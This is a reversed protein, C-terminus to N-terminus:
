CRGSNGSSSLSKSTGEFAVTTKHIQVTDRSQLVGRTLLNPQGGFVNRQSGGRHFQCRFVDAGLLNVGDVRGCDAELEELEWCGM